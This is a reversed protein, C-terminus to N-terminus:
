YLLHEGLEAEESEEEDDEMDEVDEMDDHDSRDGEGVESSDTAFQQVESGADMNEDDDSGDASELINSAKQPPNNLPPSNLVTEISPQREQHLPPQHQQRFAAEFKLRKIAAADVNDTNALSPALTRKHLGPARLEPLVKPAM